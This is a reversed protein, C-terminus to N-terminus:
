VNASNELSNSINTKPRRIFLHLTNLVVRVYEFIFMFTNFGSMDPGTTISSTSHLLTVFKKYAERTSQLLGCTSSFNLVIGTSSNLPAVFSAISDSMCFIASAASSTAYLSFNASGSKFCANSLVPVTFNFVGRKNLTVFRDDAGNSSAVSSMFHRALKASSRRFRLASLSSCAYMRRTFCATRMVFAIVLIRYSPLESSRNLCKEIALMGVSSAWAPSAAASLMACMGGSILDAANDNFPLM